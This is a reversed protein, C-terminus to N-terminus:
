FRFLLGVQGGFRKGSLVAGDFAIFATLGSPAAFELGAQFEVGYRDPPEHQLQIPRGLNFDSTYTPAWTGVPLEAVFAAGVYPTVVDTGSRVSRMLRAGATPQIECANQAQVRLNLSEDGTEDYSAGWWRSAVAGVYPQLTTAGDLRLNLGVQGGAAMSWNSTKSRMTRELTDLSATRVRQVGGYAGLAFGDAWWSGGDGVMSGYVGAMAADITDSEGGHPGDITVDGPGLGAFLGVIGGGDIAADGGVMMGGASGRYAGAECDQSDVSETFGYGRAWLRSGEDPLPGNIAAGLEADLDAGDGEPRSAGSARAAVRGLNGDRLQLLRLMATQGAMANADMVTSPTAYPNRARTAAVQGPIETAPQLLILAAVLRADASGQLGITHLDIIIDNLETGPMAGCETQYTKTPDVDLSTIILSAGSGDVVTSFEVAGRDVTGNIVLPLTFSGGGLPDIVELVGSQFTGTGAPTTLLQWTKTEGPLPVFHGPALRSDWVTRLAGAMSAAGTVAVMDADRQDPAHETLFLNSRLTSRAGLALSGGIRLTGAQLPDAGGARLFGDAVRMRGGFDGTMRVQAGSDVFLTGLFGSADGTAALDIGRVTLATGVAGTLVGAWTVREGPDDVLVSSAGLVRLEQTATGTFDADFRLTADGLRVGAAGIASSSPAIARQHRTHPRPSRRRDVANADSGTEAQAGNASIAAAAGQAVDAHIGSSLASRL